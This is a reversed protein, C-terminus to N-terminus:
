LLNKQSSINAIRLKIRGKFAGHNKMRFHFWLTDKSASDNRLWIDYIGPKVM